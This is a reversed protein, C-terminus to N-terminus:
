KAGKQSIQCITYINTICFYCNLDLFNTTTLNINDIKSSIFPLKNSNKYSM